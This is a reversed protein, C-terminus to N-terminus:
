IKLIFINIQELGSNKQLYLEVFFIFRCRLILFIKIKNYIKVYIYMYIRDIVLINKFYRIMVKFDIFDLIMLIIM